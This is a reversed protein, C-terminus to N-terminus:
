HVEVDYNDYDIGFQLEWAATRQQWQWCMLSRCDREPTDNIWYVTKGDVPFPCHQDMDDVSEVDHFIEINNQIVPQIVFSGDDWNFETSARLRPSHIAKIRDTLWFMSLLLDDNAANYAAGRWFEIMEQSDDMGFRRCTKQHWYAMDSLVEHMKNNDDLDEYGEAIIVHPELLHIM